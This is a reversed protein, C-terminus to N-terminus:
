DSPADTVIQSQGDGTGGSGRHPAHADYRSYSDATSVDVFKSTSIAASATGGSGTTLADNAHDGLRWWHVLKTAQAHANLNKPDGSNYIDSVESSSLECDWLSMEDFKADAYYTSAAGDNRYLGLTFSLGNGVTTDSPATSNGSAGKGIDDDHSASYAAWSIASGNIYHKFGAKTGSGDYTYVLHNWVSTSLADSAPSVPLYVDGDANVIYLFSRRTASHSDDPATGWGFTVGHGPVGASATAARGAFYDWSSDNPKVWISFSWANDANTASTNLFLQRVPDDDAAGSCRLIGQYESSGAGTIELSKTNSPDLTESVESAFSLGNVTEISAKAINNVKEVSAAAVGNVNDLNPM